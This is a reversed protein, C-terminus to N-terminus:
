KSYNSGGLVVPVAYHMLATMLKETVYDECNSNEFALYFYYFKEVLNQCHTSNYKPCYFNGCPGYSDISLNYKKLAENLGHAYAARTSMAVCRTVFWAAASKKNNLKNIVNQRTPQMGSVNRWHTNIRPGIREGRRNTIFFFPYVLDSDLRYTWTYNFFLNWKEDLPLYAAPEVCVFVYLQNDSRVIPLDHESLGIPTFLIADYNLADQFYDRNKVIYCNQFTCNNLILSKQKSSWHSMPERGGDTWQLIYLLGPKKERDSQVNYFINLVILSVIIKPSANFFMEENFM